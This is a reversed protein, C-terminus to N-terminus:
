KISHHWLRVDVDDTMGIHTYKKDFQDMTLLYGTITTKGTQQTVIFLEKKGFDLVKTIGNSYAGLIPFKSGRTHRISMMDKGDSQYKRIVMYEWLSCDFVWILHYGMGTYFKERTRIVEETMPSHQMEVVVGGVCVDAIHYKTPTPIRVEQYQPKYRNQWWIHWNGKNDSCVCEVKSKHAFHHTIVTGRKAVLLHGEPCFIYGTMNDQYESIHIRSDGYTAFLM